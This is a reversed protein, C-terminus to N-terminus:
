TSGFDVHRRHPEHRITQSETNSAAFPMEIFLPNQHM